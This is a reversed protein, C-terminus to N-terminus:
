GHPLPEAPLRLSPPAPGAGLPLPALVREGPDQPPLPPPSGSTRLASSLLGAVCGIVVTLRLDTGVFSATTEAVALGVMGAAAGAAAARIRPDHHRRFVQIGVLITTLFYGIYALVGAIGFHLWFWLAAFHVYEAGGINSEVSVPYRQTWPVAAGLGVLPSSSIAALVNKREDLRYRDEPNTTLHTPTLSGVRQGIPSQSDIVIGSSITVWLAVALVAAAPLLLRRGLRSTTVVLLFPLAAATGIWFSRRLSLALSLAVLPFAWRAIRDGPLRATVSALVVFVFTMALWNATPELYTITTGDAPAGVHALVGLLGLAAKIATLIGLLGIARRLDTTNRIANVTLWPVIILPFVIRIEETIANFGQGSFHGVVSGALLAVVLLVLVPGFPAPRLPWTRRRAADLVVSAVALIMLLEVPGYHGPVPDQIQDTTFHLINPTSSEFLIASGVLLGLAIRPNCLPIILAMLALPVALGIPGALRVLVAAVLAGFAVIAVTRGAHTTSMRMRNTRAPL